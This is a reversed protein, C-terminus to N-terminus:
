QENLIDKLESVQLNEKEAVQRLIANLTGTKLPNHNPISATKNNNKLKFHSGKQHILKYGLKKDLLAVLEKGSINKM